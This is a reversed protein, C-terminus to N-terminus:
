VGPSCFTGSRGKITQSDNGTRFNDGKAIGRDIRVFGDAFIYVGLFPIGQDPVGIDPDNIGTVLIFHFNSCEFPSFIRVGISEPFPGLIHFLFQTRIFLLLNGHKAGATDTAFLCGGMKEFISKLFNIMQLSSDQVVEFSYWGLFAIPIAFTKNKIVTDGYGM